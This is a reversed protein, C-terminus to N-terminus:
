PEGHWHAAKATHDHRKPVGEITRNLVPSYHSFEGSPFVVGDQILHVNWMTCLGPLGGVIAGPAHTDPM